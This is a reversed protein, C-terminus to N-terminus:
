WVYSIGASFQRRAAPVAPVEQFDNDWLNDVHVSVEFGRFAEPRYALGVSTTIADDGGVTRLLNDAQLRAVNDVRLEFGGGLRATLAATLRHRAYNLAYFSADVAAGRYDADKALATYGIVIDCASWTRRAVLELGVVDIDVANAARATVGRRFTWDVLSDDRRWFVAADTVWGALSGTVGLEVNHSKERGLNPNGRFLGGTTSSNLATYTPMQSTKTYSVFVRRLAASRFTRSVEVV